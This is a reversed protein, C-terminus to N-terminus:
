TAQDAGRRIGGVPHQGPQRIGPVTKRSRAGTVKSGAGGDHQLHSRRRSAQSTLDPRHGEIHLQAAKILDESDYRAAPM